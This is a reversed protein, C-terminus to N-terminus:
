VGRSKEYRMILAKNGDEILKSAPEWTDDKPGYNKWRIKYEVKRNKTRKGVIKDIVYYQQDSQTPKQAVKMEDPEVIQLRNRTYAARKDEEGDAGELLYLPPQNPVMIFRAIKRPKPDWRIDSKRFDGHLPKKTLPDIPGDLAVRVITGPTLIESNFKTFKYDESEKPKKSKPKDEENVERLIKPLESVWEANPVGTSIEKELIMEFIKKGVMANRKEILAQQRHRQPLAIHLEIGKDELFKAVRGKFESGDDVGLVKPEEINGREFIKKFGDIVATNDKTKLPEGDTKRSGADFVLLLYRYGKDAPLFLLDAQALVGPKYDRYFHPMEIGKEPRPPTMLKKVLERSSM